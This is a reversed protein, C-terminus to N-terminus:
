APMSQYVEADGGRDSRAPEQQEVSGSDDVLSVRGLLFSVCQLSGRQDLCERDHGPRYHQHPSQGASGGTLEEHVPVRAQHWENRSLVPRECSTGPCKAAITQCGDNARIHYREPKCHCRRGGRLQSVPAASPCTVQGVQEPVCWSPVWHGACKTRHGADSSRDDPAETLSM